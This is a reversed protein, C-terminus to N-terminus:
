DSGPAHNFIGLTERNGTPGASQLGRESRKTAGADGTRAIAHGSDCSKARPDRVRDPSMTVIRSCGRLLRTFFAALCPGVRLERHRSEPNM